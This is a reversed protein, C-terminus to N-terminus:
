KESTEQVYTPIEGKVMTRLIPNKEFNLAATVDTIKQTLEKSEELLTEKQLQAQKLQYGKQSMQNRVMFFSVSLVIALLIITIKLITIARSVEESFPRRRKSIKRPPRPLMTDNLDFFSDNM